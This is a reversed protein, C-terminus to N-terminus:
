ISITIIYDSPYKGLVIRYYDKHKSIVKEIVGQAIILENNMVQECFRGRFSVVEDINSVKDGDLFEVQSLTYKCPTFFSESDDIVKAKIKGYGIPKYIVSGYEENIENWDKVYRIFYDINEFKGQITKRKEHWLFNNLPIQTDRSRFQYLRYLDGNNYPKVKSSSKFLEMLAEKVAKCYKSGYVIVDIDSSPLNLSLLISGSIGFQSLPTNSENSLLKVFRIAASEISNLNDANLLQTLKQQPKYHYFVKSYEIECLEQNFIPDLILFQPYREKLLKYRENLAYVKKYRLLGRVREGNQDPIYRIFSILRNPPHVLGKVEFISHDELEIFDGERGKLM